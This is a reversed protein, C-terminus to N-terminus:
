WSAPGAICPPLGLPGLRPAWLTNKPMKKVTPEPQETCKKGRQMSHLCPRAILVSDTQGDILRTIQSLVSSFDTWM